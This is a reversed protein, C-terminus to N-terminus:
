AEIKGHFKVVLHLNNRDELGKSLKRPNQAPEDNEVLNDVVLRVLQCNDKGSGEETQSADMDKGPFFISEFFLLSLLFNRTLFSLFGHKIAVILVFLTIQRGEAPLSM